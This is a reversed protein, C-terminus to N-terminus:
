NQAHRSRREQLARDRRYARRAADMGSEVDPSEGSFVVRGDKLVAWEVGSFLGQMKVCYRHRLAMNKPM